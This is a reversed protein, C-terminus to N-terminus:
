IVNLTWVRDRAMSVPLPILEYRFMLRAIGAVVDVRVSEDTFLLLDGPFFEPQEGGRQNFQSNTVITTPMSPYIPSDIDQAIQQRAITMFSDPQELRPSFTLRVIHAESDNHFYTMWHLRWAEDDPVRAQFLPVEGVAVAAPIEQTRVSRQFPRM